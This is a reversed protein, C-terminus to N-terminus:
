CFVPPGRLPTLFLSSLSFTIETPTPLASLVLLPHRPVWVFAVPPTM